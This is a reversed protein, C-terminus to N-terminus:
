GPGANGAALAFFLTVAGRLADSRANYRDHARRVRLVDVGAVHLPLVECHSHRHAPKGPQGISKGLLDLVVYRGDGQMVHVVVEAPYM